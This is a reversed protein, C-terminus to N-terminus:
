VVERRMMALPHCIPTRGSLAHEQLTADDLPPIMKTLFRGAGDILEYAGGLLVVDPHERMFRVQIELRDPLAIDDADMRALFEGGSLAIAAHTHGQGCTKAGGVREWDEAGVVGM